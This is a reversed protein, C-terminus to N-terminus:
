QIVEILSLSSNSVKSPLQPLRIVSTIKYTWRPTSYLGLPVPPPTSPGSLLPLHLSSDSTLHHRHIVPPYIFLSPSLAQTHRSPSRAPGNPNLFRRLGFSSDLSSYSALHLLSPAVCTVACIPDPAAPISTTSASPCRGYLEAQIKGHVLSPRHLSPPHLLSLLTFTSSPSPLLPFPSLPLHHLHSIPLM